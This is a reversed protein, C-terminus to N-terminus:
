SDIILKFSNIFLISGNHFCYIAFRIYIGKMQIAMGKFWHLFSYIKMCIYLNM